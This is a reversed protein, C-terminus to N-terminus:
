RQSAALPSGARVREALERLHAGLTFEPEFYPMSILVQDLDRELQAPELVGRQLFELLVLVVQERFQWNPHLYFRRLRALLDPNHSIKGLANLAQVVVEPSSDDLAACLADEIEGDVTFLEGLAQASWARVEFYPDTDLAILLAARTQEDTTGLGRLGHEVVNRRIIGGHRFDGGCFRRTWKTPTRDTLIHLLLPLREQYRLAAVLKVGVNRRGLPIEYWGESVLLRDAQYRLYALEGREMAEVGGVEKVRALVWRLLANPASPLGSKKALPSELRLPPPELGATLSDLEATILELSNAKPMTKAAAGMAQLREEDACLALVQQALKEGDLGSHICANDWFAEQYLVQAAGIREMERANLAQHDEASTPLPVILTPTGSVAMETLTGAGSRCIVLDAAAILDAIEDAYDLRRYWDGEGEIGMESLAAETDAVADYDSGKYRGTVHIIVLGAAQWRSLATLVAENIAKAGGSGGFALVVKRGQDIGLKERAATRDLNLFSRRVPYGVVAVKEADFWRGAQEFAVGIRQALRGTVQNLLGPYANPEYIFVRARSLGVKALVGHAFLVPASVFGGTSIIIQPRYRLLILAGQVVGVALAIAFRLLPVLSRTRPFSRARVFRIRYGQDPVVWADLRDRHGVYLFEADARTQRIENAIALAPYVHGGTGGGTLLYKM